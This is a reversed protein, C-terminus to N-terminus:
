VSLLEMEVPKVVNKSTRNSNPRKREKRIEKMRTFLNCAALFLWNAIIFFWEVFFVSDLPLWLGLLGGIGAVFSYFTWGPKETFIPYLLNSPGIIHETNCFDYDLSNVIRQVDSLVYRIHKCSPLCNNICDSANTATFYPLCNKLQMWSCEDSFRLLTNM